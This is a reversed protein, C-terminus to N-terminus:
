NKLGSFTNTVWFDSDKGSYAQLSQLFFVSWLFFSYDGLNIQVLLNLPYKVMSMIYMVAGFAAFIWSISYKRKLYSIMTVSLFIHIIGSLLLMWEIMLSNLYLNM